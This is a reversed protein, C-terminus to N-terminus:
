FDSLPKSDNPKLPAHLSFGLMVYSSAQAIQPRPSSPINLPQEKIKGIEWPALSTPLSPGVDCM